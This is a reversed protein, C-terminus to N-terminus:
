ETWGKYNVSSSTIPQSYKTKIITENEVVVSPPLIFGKYLAFSMRRYFKDLWETKQEKSINMKKEYLFEDELLEQYAEHYNEVRWIIEDLFEYPM